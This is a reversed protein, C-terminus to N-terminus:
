LEELLTKLESIRMANRQQKKVLRKGMAEIRRAFVTAVNEEVSESIVFRHVVTVRQQGIRHVRGMAQVEMGPTETSEHM